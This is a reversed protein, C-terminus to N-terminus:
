PKNEPPTVATMAGERTRAGDLRAARGHEPNAATSAPPLDLEASGDDSAEFTGSGGCEPCRIAYRETGHRDIIPYVGHGECIDCEETM